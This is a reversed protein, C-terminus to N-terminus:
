NCYLLLFLIKMRVVVNKLLSFLFVFIEISQKKKFNLLIGQLAEWVLVCLAKQHKGLTVYFEVIHFHWEEYLM